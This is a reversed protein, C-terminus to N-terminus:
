NDSRRWRLPPFNDVSFSYTYLMLFVYKLQDFEERRKKDDTPLHALEKHKFWMGYDNKWNQILEVPEPSRKKFLLKKLRKIFSQQNKTTIFPIAITEAYKNMLKVAKDLENNKQASQIQEYYEGFLNIRLYGIQTLLLQKKKKPSIKSKLGRSLENQPMIPFDIKKDRIAHQNIEEFKSKLEQYTEELEKLSNEKL